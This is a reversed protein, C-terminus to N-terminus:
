KNKEAKAHAQEHQIDFVRQEMRSKMFYIAGIAMLQVGAFALKKM